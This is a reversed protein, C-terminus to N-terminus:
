PHCLRGRLLRPREVHGAEISVIGQQRMGVLDALAQQSLGLKMRRQAVRAGFAKKDVNRMRFSYLVSASTDVSIDTTMLQIKPLISEM